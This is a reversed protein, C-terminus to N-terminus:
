VHPEITIKRFAMEASSRICSRLNRVGDSANAIVATLLYDNLPKSQLLAEATM